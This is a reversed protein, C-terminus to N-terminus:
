GRSRDRGMLSRMEPLTAALTGVNPRWLSKADRSASCTYRVPLGQGYPQLSIPRFGSVPRRAWQQAGGNGKGEHALLHESNLTPLTKSAFAKVDSDSGSNAEKQFEAIDEEHDRVMAAMYAKDFEPGSLGQLRKMLADEQATMESPARLNEQQAIRQLEDGAKSHDESMQKGFDKVKQNSAREQALQGLRM